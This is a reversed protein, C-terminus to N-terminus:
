THYILMLLLPTHSLIDCACQHMVYTRVESEKDIDQRDNIMKSKM